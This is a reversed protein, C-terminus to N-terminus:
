MKNFSVLFMLLVLTFESFRVTSSNEGPKGTTATASGGTDDSVIDKDPISTLKGCLAKFRDNPEDPATCGEGFEYVPNGLFNGAPSYNCLLHYKFKFQAEQEDTFTVRSCAVFETSAWVVQTFHGIVAESSGFSEILEKTTDKIEEYWAKISENLLKDNKGDIGATGSQLFLNQGASAYKPLNRCKDHTFICRKSWCYTTVEIDIDYNMVKMNKAAENGGRRDEGSAVKNRYMNHQDLLIQRDNRSLPYFKYEKCRDNDEKCKYECITHIDSPKLCKVACFEEVNIGESLVQTLHLVVMSGLIIIIHM